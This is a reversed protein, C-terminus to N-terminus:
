RILTNNRKNIQPGFRKFWTPKFSGSVGELSSSTHRATQDAFECFKSVDIHGYWVMPIFSKVMWIIHYIIIYCTMKPNLSYDKCVFIYCFSPEKFQQMIQDTRRKRCQYGPNTVYTIKEGKERQQKKKM